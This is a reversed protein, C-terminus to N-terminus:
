INSASGIVTGKAVEALKSVQAQIQPMLTNLAQSNTYSMYLAGLAAVGTIIILFIILKEKTFGLQPQMLARLYLDNFKKSDFGDIASYDVNCVSSKEADVDIMNVAMCRYVANKDKLSIRHENKGRKHILFGDEVWGVAYFDTLKDRVKILVLRGFSMRVKVYKWFFGKQLFSVMFVALIIVIAYYFAQIFVPHLAM